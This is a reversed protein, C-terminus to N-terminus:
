SRSTTFTDLASIPHLRKDLCFYGLTTFSDLASIPLLRKDLCFYCFTTFSDLASIPHLRKYLVMHNVNGLRVQGFPHTPTLSLKQLNAYIGKVIPMVRLFWIFDNNCNDSIHNKAEVIPMVQWKQSQCLEKELEGNTSDIKLFGQCIISKDISSYKKDFNLKFDLKDVFNYNRTALSSDCRKRRAVDIVISGSLAFQM